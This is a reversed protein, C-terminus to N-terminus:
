ERKMSVKSPPRATIAENGDLAMMVVHREKRGRSAPVPPQSLLPAGRGIRRVVRRQMCATRTRRWPSTPVYLGVFCIAESGNGLAMMLVMVLPHRSCAKM